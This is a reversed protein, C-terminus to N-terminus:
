DGGYHVLFTAGGAGDVFINGYVYTEHFSPDLTTIIASDQPDVLDLLHGGTEIWNYRIITGASRDKLTNGLSGARPSGLHNYQFTVNICETYINHQRDSG